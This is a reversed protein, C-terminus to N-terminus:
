RRVDADILSAMIPRRCAREKRSRQQARLLWGRLVRQACSWSVRRGGRMEAATKERKKRRAPRLDLESGM